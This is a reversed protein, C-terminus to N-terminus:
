TTARSKYIIINHFTKKKKFQSIYNNSFSSSLKDLNQNESLSFLFLITKITITYFFIFDFWSSCLTFYCKKIIQNTISLLYWDPYIYFLHFLQLKVIKGFIRVFVFKTVLLACGRKSCVSKIVSEVQHPPDLNWIFKSFHLEIEGM